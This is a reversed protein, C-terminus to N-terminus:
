AVVTYSTSRGTTGEIQKICGKELLEQLDRTATTSSTKSIAIYKRKNIGGEYNEIGKDLVKNIVKIQRSNLNSDKHKDWFATKQLIYDLSKKADELSVLLTKLFWEIWLTIDILSNEKKRFGTTADLVEYYGERDMNIATSMSYLKSTKSNEIKSLVLDTIARSIRGNGDDLPHIIVFWLHAIAAKILTDEKNNFWDLFRNMQNELNSRPPAIYHIKERGEGGSVVEMDENGRFAAVNIKVFGSYGRPFLANHWGFIRELTLEQNYNTNADILVDILFDTKEDTKINKLNFLGLKKRISARVSDRNLKEGEIASTNIAESSLIEFQREKLNEENFFSTFAILYGQQLTAEQVLQNISKSDFKFNPYNDDEWIWRKEVDM